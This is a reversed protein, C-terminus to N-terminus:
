GISLTFDRSYYKAVLRFLERGLERAAQGPDALRQVRVQQPELLQGIPQRDPKRPSSSPLWSV